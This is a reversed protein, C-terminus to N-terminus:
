RLGDVTKLAKQLEAAKASYPHGTDIMDQLISDLRKRAAPDPLQQTLCFVEGWQADKKYPSRRFTRFERFDQEAAAYNKLHYQTYARLYLFKQLQATDPQQLLKLAAGYEGAEYHNVADTYKTATDDPHDGMLTVKFDKDRYADKSLAAFPSPKKPQDAPKVPPAQNPAPDTPTQQTTTDAITPQQPPTQNILTPQQPNNQNFWGMFYGATAIGVVAVLPLMWGKWWPANAEQGTAPVPTKKEDLEQEWDAFQTLLHEDRLLRLVKSEARLAETRRALDADTQLAQEFAARDATSMRDHLYDDIDEFDYLPNM